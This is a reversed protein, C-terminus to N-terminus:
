YQTFWTEKSVNSEAQYLVMVIHSALKNRSTRARGTDKPHRPSLATVRRRMWPFHMYIELNRM